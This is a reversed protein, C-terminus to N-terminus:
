VLSTSFFSYFYYFLQGGSLWHMIIAEYFMDAGCDLYKAYPIEVIPVLGSQAYGIGAGLLATEDPPFDSVRGPYKKALGHTVLYYGGHEVDEGIYVVRKDSALVEDVVRTMHKRMIEKKGPKAPKSSEGEEPLAAKGGGGGGLRPLSQARAPTTRSLLDERSTLKPEDSVSAFCEQVLDLMGDFRAAIEGYSAVAGCDVAQVCMAAIASHEQASQIESEDLYAPQRDTAAHGFRRSLSEFIVASPAGRRRSYAAAESTAAYVAAVDNGNCRFVPMGGMRQETFKDLWGYGRLSICRDNDSIGFIVPCKFGRHRTYEALNVASLFHSNNVSGDGTSVYSVFDSPFPSAEKAEGGLLHALRGGLARGVAPTSQSALTSTM